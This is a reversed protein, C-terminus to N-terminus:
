RSEVGACLRRRRYRTAPEAELWAPCANSTPIQPKQGAALLTYTVIAVTEQGTTGWDGSAGAETPRRQISLLYAVGTPIAKDVAYPDVLGTAAYRWTSPCRNGGGGVQLVCRKQSISPVREMIQGKVFHRQNLPRHMMMKPDPANCIVSKFAHSRPAVNWKPILTDFVLKM